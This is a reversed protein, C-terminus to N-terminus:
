RVGAEADRLLHRFSVEIVDGAARYEIWGRQSAAAAQEHLVHEPADLMRAWLTRFLARGRQGCIHGLLLAYAASTPRSNARTRVKKARGQLLGAQEWTSAVNKGLVGSTGPSFKGPYQRDGEESLMKPTVPAGAELDLVLPTVARLIPDRATALLLALLPQAEADADWLDRLARFLVVTPDLGYFEALRHHTRQRTSATPKGLVNDDVAAARYAVADADAPCAALLARFERLMLTRSLITGYPDIRFGYAAAERPVDFSRGATTVLVTM